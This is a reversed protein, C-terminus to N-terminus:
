LKKDVSHNKFLDSVFYSSLREQTKQQQLLKKIEVRMAETADKASDEDEEGEDKRGIRQELFFIQIGQSTEVPKSFTGEKLSFVADFIESSLDKEAVLGLSGGEAAEPGDSYHSAVDGFNKNDDLDETILAVRTKLDEPSRDTTSILIRRLRLSVGASKFDPHDELYKDIEADSVSVGGRAVAASLKTKLIDFKVQRKYSAFNKGEAALAKEFEPRSLGNRSSVESIYEEIESETASFRKAAAEEELLRELILGDLVRQAEQDQAAETFTLRRNPTLRECLETLTIPKDNVSAVIAEVMVESHVPTGGTAKDEAHIFLPFLIPTITALCISVVMHVRNSHSHRRSFSSSM